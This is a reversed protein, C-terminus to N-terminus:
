NDYKKSTFMHKKKKKYEKCIIENHEMSYNQNSITSCYHFNAKEKSYKEEENKKGYINILM